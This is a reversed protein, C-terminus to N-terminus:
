RVEISERTIITLEAESFVESRISGDVRQLRVLAGEAPNSVAARQFAEICDWSHTTAIVQVDLRTALIFVLRWVDVLTTFHLGADAEDILFTGGTGVSVLGLALEFLRNMGDGLSRLPIPSRGRVKAVASRRGGRSSVMVIRELDPEIIRLADLVRDERDTLVVRDWMEAADLRDGQFGSSPLFVSAPPTPKPRRRSIISLDHTPSHISVAGHGARGHLARIVRHAEVDAPPADGFARRTSHDEAIETWAWTVSVTLPHEGDSTSITFSDAKSGNKVFFLRDLDVDKGEDDTLYEDRRELMRHAEFLELATSAHVHVAELLTTKGVNNKGVVLTVRGLREITLDSFARFGSIKLSGLM